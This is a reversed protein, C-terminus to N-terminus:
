AGPSTVGNQVNAGNQTFWGVGLEHGANRSVELVRGGAHGAPEVEVANIPPTLPSLRREAGISVALPVVIRTVFGAPRPPSEQQMGPAHGGLM